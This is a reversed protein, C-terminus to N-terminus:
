LWVSCLGIMWDVRKEGPLTYESLSDLGGAAVGVKEEGEAAGTSFGGLADQAQTSGQDRQALSSYPELPPMDSLSSGFFAPSLQSSPAPLNPSYPPRLGVATNPLNTPIAGQVPNQVLLRDTLFCVPAGRPETRKSINCLTTKYIYESFLQPGVTPVSKESKQGESVESVKKPIRDLLSDLEGKNVCSNCEEMHESVPVSYPMPPLAQSSPSESLDTCPTVVSTAPDDSVPIPTALPAPICQASSLDGPSFPFLSTYFFSSVSCLHSNTPGSTNLTQRKTMGPGIDGLSELGNSSM